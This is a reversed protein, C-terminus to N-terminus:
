ILGVYVTSLSIDSCKEYNSFRLGLWSAKDCVIIYVMKMRYVNRITILITSGSYRYNVPMIIQLRAYPIIYVRKLVSILLDQRRGFTAAQQQKM